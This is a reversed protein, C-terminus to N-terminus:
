KKFGQYVGLAYCLAQTNGEAHVRVGQGYKLDITVLREDEVIIADSTGFGEPVWDTFDVRQEVGLEGDFLRVFDVYQQVYACMERSFIIANQFESPQGELDFANGSGLLTR